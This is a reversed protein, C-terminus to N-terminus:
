ARGGQWHQGLAFAAYDARAQQWDAAGLVRQAWLGREVARALSAFAQRAAAPVDDLLAIARATLAPKLLGPRRAAL